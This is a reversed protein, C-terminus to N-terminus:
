NLVDNKCINFGTLSLQSLLCRCVKVLDTSEAVSRDRPSMNLRLLIFFVTKTHYAEGQRSNLALSATCVCLKGGGGGGGVCSLVNIAPYRNDVSSSYETYWSWKNTQTAIMTAIQKEKSM